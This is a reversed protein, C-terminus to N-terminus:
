TLRKQLDATIFRKGEEILWGTVEYDLGEIEVTCAKSFTSIYPMYLRSTNFVGDVGEIRKQSSLPTLMGQHTSTTTIVTPRGYQNLETATSPTKLTFTCNTKM